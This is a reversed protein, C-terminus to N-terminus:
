ARPNSDGPGRRLSLVAMPAVRIEQPPRNPRRREKGPRRVQTRGPVSVPEESDGLTNRHDRRDDRGDLFNDGRYPNRAAAVHSPRHVRRRPHQMRGAAVQRVQARGKRTRVSPREGGGDEQGRERGPGGQSATGAGRELM